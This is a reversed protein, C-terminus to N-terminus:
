QHCQTATGLNLTVSTADLPTEITLLSNNNALVINKNKVYCSLEGKCM